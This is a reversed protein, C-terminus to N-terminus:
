EEGEEESEELLARLGALREDIEAGSMRVARLQPEQRVDPLGQCADDCVPAMPVALSSTSGPWNLTDLTYDEVLRAMARRSRGTPRAAADIKPLSFEEEIQAKVPILVEKLFCRRASRSWRRPWIAACWFTTTLQDADAKMSRPCTNRFDADAPCPENIDVTVQHGGTSSELSKKLKMRM